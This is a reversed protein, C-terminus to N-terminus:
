MHLLSRVWKYMCVHKIYAVLCSNDIVCTCAVTLSHQMGKKCVHLGAVRGQPWHLVRMKRKVWNNIYLCCEANVYASVALWMRAIIMYMCTNM